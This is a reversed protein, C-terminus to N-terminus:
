LEGILVRYTHPKLEKQIQVEALIEGPVKLELEKLRDKSYQRTLSEFWLLEGSANCVQWTWSGKNQEPGRVIRFRKGLVDVSVKSSVREYVHFIVASHQRKLSVMQTLREVSSPFRLHLYQHCWNDEKKMPCSQHQLCPFHVGYGRALIHTRVDLIKKFVEPTGPELFLLFQPQVEEIVSLLNDLSLENCSHGFFLTAGEIKKQAITSTVLIHEHHLFKDLVNNALTMMSPDKEVLLGEKPLSMGQSQLWAYWALTYTAPGSGFDIWSTKSIRTILEKPLYPLLKFLKPVNTTLYLYLYASALRADLQNNALDQRRHVYLNSLEKTARVLDDESTFNYTACSEVDSLELGREVIEALKSIAM